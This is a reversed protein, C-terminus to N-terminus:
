SVQISKAWQTISEEMKEASDAVVAFQVLWFSDETRFVYAYYCYEQKTDSSYFTFEFWTLGDKEQVGDTKKGSNEIVLQAYDKVSCNELVPSLSFKEELAFLAVKPSEYCVQYNPQDVKRFADTLTITLGNDSFTKAKTTGIIGKAVMQGIVAGVFVSVIIALLGIVRRSRRSKENEPSNNGDFRFANGTFPDLRNSGTLEVNERGEPITISECCYSKSVKGAIVFIQVETVPIEFSPSQGNKLTGLKRCQIKSITTDGDPDSVYVKMTGLCGAFRKERHITLQRM